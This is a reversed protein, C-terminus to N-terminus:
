NQTKAISARDAECSLAAKKMRAGYEIAEGFTKGKYDEIKQPVLLVEPVPKPTPGFISCASLTLLIPLLLARMNSGGYDLWLVTWNIRSAPKHQDTTQSSRM